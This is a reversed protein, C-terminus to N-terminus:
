AGESSRYQQRLHPPLNVIEEPFQDTVFQILDNTTLLGRLEGQRDVVVLHRHKLEVMRGIADALTTQRRVTTPPRSMIASLATHMRERRSTFIGKQIRNLVDRETLIGVPTMREVVVLAGRRGRRLFQIAQHATANPELRPAPLPGLDLVRNRGLMDRVTNMGRNYGWEM